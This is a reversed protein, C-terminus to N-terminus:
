EQVVIDAPKVLAPAAQSAPDSMRLYFQKTTLMGVVVRESFVRIANVKERLPRGSGTQIHLQYSGDGYQHPVFQPKSRRYIKAM